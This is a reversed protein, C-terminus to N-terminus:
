WFMFSMNTVKLTKHCRISGTHLQQWSQIIVTAICGFQFLRVFLEFFVSCNLSCRVVTRLVGGYMTTQVRVKSTPFCATHYSLDHRFKGLKMRPLESNPLKTSLPWTRSTNTGDKARRCPTQIWARAKNNQRIHCQATHSEQVPTFTILELLQLNSSKVHDSIFHDRAEAAKRLYM